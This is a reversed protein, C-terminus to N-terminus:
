GFQFKLDNPYRQIPKKSGRGERQDRQMRVQAEKSDKQTESENFEQDETKAMDGVDEVGISKEANADERIFSDPTEKPVESYDESKVISM